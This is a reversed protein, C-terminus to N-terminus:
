FVVVDIELQLHTSYDDLMFIVQKSPAFAVPITPLRKIYGLMHKVHYSGKEAWQVKIKGPTNATVRLGKGKFVFEVPPLKVRNSSSAITRM